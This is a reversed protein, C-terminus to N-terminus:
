GLDIGPKGGDDKPQKELSWARLARDLKEDSIGARDYSFHPNSPLLQHALLSIFLRVENLREGGMHKLSWRGDPTLRDTFIDERVLPRPRTTDDALEQKCYDRIVEKLTKQNLGKITGLFEQVPLEDILVLMLAEDPIKRKLPPVSIEERIEDALSVAKTIIAKTKESNDSQLVKCNFHDDM